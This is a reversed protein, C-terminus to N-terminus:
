TTDASTFFCVGDGERHEGEFEIEYSVAIEIDSSYMLPLNTARQQQRKVKFKIGVDEGRTNIWLVQSDKTPCTSIVSDARAKQRDASESDHHIV